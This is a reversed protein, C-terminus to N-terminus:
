HEERVNLQRIFSSITTHRFYRALIELLQPKTHAILIHTGQEVTLVPGMLERRSLEFKSLLPLSVLLTSARFLGLPDM